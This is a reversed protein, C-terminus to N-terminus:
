ASREDVVVNCVLQDSQQHRTVLCGYGLYQVTASSGDTVNVRVFIPLAVDSHDVFTRWLEHAGLEEKGFKAQIGAPNKRAVVYLPRAFSMPACITSSPSGAVQAFLAERTLCTGVPLTAFYDARYPHTTHLKREKDIRTRVNQRMNTLHSVMPLLGHILATQFADVRYMADHVMANRIETFHKLEQFTHADLDEYYRLQCLQRFLPDKDLQTSRVLMGADAAEAFERAEDAASPKAHGHMLAHRDRYMARIRGEIYSSLLLMAGMRALVSHDDSLAAIQALYSQVQIHFQQGQALRPPRATMAKIATEGLATLPFEPLTQIRQAAPKFPTRPSM